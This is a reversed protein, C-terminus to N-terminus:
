GSLGIGAKPLLESQDSDGLPPLSRTKAQVEREFNGRTGGRIEALALISRLFHGCRFAGHGDLRKKPRGDRKAATQECGICSPCRRKTSSKDFVRSIRLFSWAYEGGNRKWTVDVADQPANRWGIGAQAGRRFVHGQSRYLPQISGVRNERRLACM